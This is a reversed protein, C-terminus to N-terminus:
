RQESEGVVAVTVQLSGEEVTKFTVSENIMGASRPLLALEYDVRTPSRAIERVQLMPSSPLVELGDIRRTSELRLQRIARQGVTLKGVLAVDPVARLPNFVEGHLRVTLDVDRSGHCRLDVSYSFRGVPHRPPLEFRLEYKHPVASPRLESQIPGTQLAIEPPITADGNLVEITTTGVQKGDPGIQLMVERPTADLRPAFTYGVSTVGIVSDSSHATLRYKIAGKRMERARLSVRTEVQEGPNLSKPAPWDISMCGCAIEVRDIKLADNGVNRIRVPLVPDSDPIRLLHGFNPDPPDFCVTPRANSGEARALSVPILLGVAVSHIVTRLPILLSDVRADDQHLRPRDKM